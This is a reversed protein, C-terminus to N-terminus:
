LLLVVVLRIEIQNFYTTTAFILLTLNVMRRKCVLFLSPPSCILFLKYNRLTLGEAIGRIFYCLKIMIDLM